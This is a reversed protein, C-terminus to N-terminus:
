DCVEELPVVDGFSGFDKCSQANDFLITLTVLGLKKLRAKNNENMSAYGDTIVVAKDFGRELISEAICDFDTGYTTQISGRLLSEFPTEVIKNSFQFVSTIEKRLSRLVGLIQCFM